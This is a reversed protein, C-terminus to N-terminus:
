RPPAAEPVQVAMGITLPKLKPAGEFPLDIPPLIQAQPYRRLFDPPGQGEDLWVLVLGQRSLDPLDIWPSQAPDGDILVHPRSAGALHALHFAANGAVYIPGAVYHLPQDPSVQRWASDVARALGAGPFQTKSPKARWQPVLAYYIAFSLLITAVVAPLAYFFRRLKAHDIQGIQMIAVPGLFCFMPLGWAAVFPRGLGACILATLGIPGLCLTWVMRRDFASLEARLVIDDHRKPGAVLCRVLILFGLIEPIQKILFIVPQTVHGIANSDHGTRALAYDVPQAGHQILWLGHPALVVLGVVAGLWPGITALSARAKPEVALFLLISAILVASAYKGYLSLALVLGLAAWDRLRQDVLARHLFLGSAAWFPLLVVNANFDVTRFNLYLVGELSLVSLAAGLPTFLRLSLRWIFFLALAGSVAGLAYAALASPAGTLFTTAELLWAWLPPHKAYGWQWEYGWAFGEIQDRQLNAHFLAPMLTWLVAHALIILPMARSLRAGLDSEARMPAIM